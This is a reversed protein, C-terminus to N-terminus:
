KDTIELSDIKNRYELSIHLYWEIRSYRLRGVMAPHRLASRGQIQCVVSVVSKLSTTIAGNIYNEFITITGNPQATDGRQYM